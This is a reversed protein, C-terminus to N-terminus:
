AGLENDLLQQGCHQGWQGCGFDKCVGSWCSNKGM